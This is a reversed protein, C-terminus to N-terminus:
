TLHIAVRCVEGGSLVSELVEVEVPKQIIEEWIGKYFGAGCYCYSSPLTQSLALADRVRPCHCYIRRKEEPDTEELYEVLYGSKPIKTAIITEGQIVGALGWGRGVVETVLDEDLGLTEELFHEFKMQLMNHASRIDKSVEYERRVDQLDSKPYQCACGTMVSKLGEEDVHTALRDMADRTWQIVDLPDAQASLNESGEMVVDRIEPGAVQDLSRAFKAQWACEFDLKETM